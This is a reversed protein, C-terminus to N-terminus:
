IPFIQPSIFSLAKELSPFIDTFLLYCIYKIYKLASNLTLKAIKIITRRNHLTFNAYTLQFYIFTKLRLLKPTNSM